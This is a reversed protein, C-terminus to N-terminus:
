PSFKKIFNYYGRSGDLAHHRAVSRRIKDIRALYEKLTLDNVKGIRALGRAVCDDIIGATEDTRPVSENKAFGFAQKIAIKANDLALMCLLDTLRPHMEYRFVLGMEIDQCVDLHKDDNFDKM